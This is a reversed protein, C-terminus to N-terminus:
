RAKTFSGADDGDDDDDDSDDDSGCGDDDDGSIDDNDHYFWSDSSLGQSRFINFSSVEGAKSMWWRHFLDVTNQTLITVTMVIIMIIMVVIIM